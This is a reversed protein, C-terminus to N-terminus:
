NINPQDPIGTYLQPVQFFRREHAVRSTKLQHYQMLIAEINNQNCPEAAQRAPLHVRRTAEVDVPEDCHM